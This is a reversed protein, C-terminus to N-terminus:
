RVNILLWLGCIYIIYWDVIIRYNLNPLEQKDSSRKNIIDNNELNNM